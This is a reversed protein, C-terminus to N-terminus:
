APVIFTTNQERRASGASRNRLHVPQPASCRSADSPKGCTAPLSDILTTGAHNQEAKLPLCLHM